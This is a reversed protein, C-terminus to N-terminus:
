RVAIKGDSTKSLLSQEGYKRIHNHVASTIQRTRYYGDVGKKWIYADSEDIAHRVSSYSMPEGASKVVNAIIAVLGQQKKPATKNKVCSCINTQVFEVKRRNSEPLVFVEPNPMVDLMPYGNTKVYDLAERVSHVKIKWSVNTLQGDTVKAFHENLEDATVGVRCFACRTVFEDWHKKFAPNVTDKTQATTFIVVVQPLNGAIKARYITDFVTKFNSINEVSLRDCEDFIFVSLGGFMPPTLALTKISDFHAKVADDDNCNPRYVDGDAMNAIMDALMTKGNGTKGQLFFVCGGLGNNDAIERKIRDIAAVNGIIQNFAKPTSQTM